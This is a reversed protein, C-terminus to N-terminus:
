FGLQTIQLTTPLIIAEVNDLNYYHSGTFTVKRPLLSKLEEESEAM